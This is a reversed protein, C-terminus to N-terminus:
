VKGLADLETNPGNESMSKLINIWFKHDYTSNLNGQPDEGNADSMEELTLYEIENFPYYDEHTEYDYIRLAENDTNKNWHIDSSM